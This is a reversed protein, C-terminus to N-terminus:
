VRWRSAGVSVGALPRHITVALETRMTQGTEPNLARMLKRARFGVVDGRPGTQLQVRAPRPPAAECVVYGAPLGVSACEYATGFIIQTCLTWALAHDAKHLRAELWELSPAPARDLFTAMRPVDVDAQHRPDAPLYAACERVFEAASAPGCVLEERGGESWYVVGAGRPGARDVVVWDTM